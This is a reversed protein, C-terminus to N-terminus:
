LSCGPDDPTFDQYIVQMGLQLALDIELVAGKSTQWDALAYVAVCDLM